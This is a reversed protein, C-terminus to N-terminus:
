IAWSIQTHVSPFTLFNDSHSLFEEAWEHFRKRMFQYSLLRGCFHFIKCALSNHVLGQLGGSQNSLFCISGKSSYQSVRCLFGWRRKSRSKSIIIGSTRPWWWEPWVYDWKVPALGLKEASPTRLLEASQRQGWATPSRQRVYGRLPKVIKWVARSKFMHMELQTTSFFFVGTPYCSFHQTHGPSSANSTVTTQKTDKNQLIVAASRSWSRQVGTVEKYALLSHCKWSPTM